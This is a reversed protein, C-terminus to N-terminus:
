QPTLNARNLGDRLADYIDCRSLTYYLLHTNKKKDSVVEILFDKMGGEKHREITIYFSHRKYRLSLVKDSKEMFNKENIRCGAIIM